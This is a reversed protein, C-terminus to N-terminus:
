FDTEDFENGYAGGLVDLMPAATDVGCADEIHKKKIYIYIYIGLSPGVM